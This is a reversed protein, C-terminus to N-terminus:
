LAAIVPKALAACEDSTDLGNVQILAQGVLVYLTGQNDFFAKDGLGTVSSAKTTGSLVTSYTSAADHEFVKVEVQVSDDANGYNCGFEKAPQGTAASATTIGAGSLKAATAAPLTACIDIAKASGGSSASTAPSSGAAASSVAPSSPGTPSSASSKSSSGCGAISLMALGALAIAIAPNRSDTM